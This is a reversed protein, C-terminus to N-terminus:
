WNLQYFRTGHLSVNIIANANSSVNIPPSTIRSTYTEGTKFRSYPILSNFLININLSNLEHLKPNQLDNLIISANVNNFYLPIANPNWVPQIVYNFM